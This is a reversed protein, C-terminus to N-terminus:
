RIYTYNGFTGASIDTKAASDVNTLMGTYLICNGIILTALAGKANVGTGTDVSKELIGVCDSYNNSSDGAELCLYAFRGTTFATGGIATTFTIKAMHPYTTRDIATIAGLSEAATTDDNIVVDDDVAFKYSDDKSVYVFSDTTGTTAVLYARGPHVEAGTFTTPNYPVLKGIGGSASLNKALATGMKLVGYGAQLTVPVKLAALEESYYLRKYNQQAGYLVHPTDSPM